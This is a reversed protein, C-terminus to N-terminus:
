TKFLPDIFFHSFRDLSGEFGANNVSFMYVTRDLSTYANSSGGHDTIYQSFDNENPYAQTGMFLMHELFHAMGPYDKPDSWSGVAVALAAASEEAHPDSVLYAELGNNLHLKCTSRSSLSPTLIKLSNTDQIEQYGNGAFIQPLICLSLVTLSLSLSRLM